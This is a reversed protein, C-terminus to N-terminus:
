KRNLLQTSEAHLLKNSALLSGEFIDLKEGRYNSVQGDAEELILAGAAMDWAKLGQEWYIDFRGMAVWCLDLSAAGNRRLGLCRKLFEWTEPLNSTEYTLKEHNFYGSAAIANELKSVQSVGIPQNNLFAGMNKGAVFCENTFPNFVCGVLLEKKESDYGAISVAAHPIGRAYNTTGDIPDVIWLLNSSSRKIFDAEESMVDSEPMLELLRRTILDSAAKDADTVLDFASKKEIQRPNKAMDLILQGAERSVKVCIDLIKQDM